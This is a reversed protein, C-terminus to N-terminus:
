FTDTTFIGSKGFADDTTGTIFVPFRRTANHVQLRLLCPLYNPRDHSMVDCDHYPLVEVLGAEQCGDLFQKRDRADENTRADQRLGRSDRYHLYWKWKGKRGREQLLVATRKMSELSLDKFSAGDFMIFGGRAFLKEHTLNPIDDPRDIGAFVASSSKKLELLHPVECIHEAIDQNRVVVLLPCPPNPTDLDFQEPGVAIHGDAELQEKTERFFPDESTVLIFFRYKISSDQTVVHNGDEELWDFFDVMKGGSLDLASSTATNVSTEEKKLRDSQCSINTTALALPSKCDGTTRETSCLEDSVRKDRACVAETRLDLPGDVDKIYPGDGPDCVAISAVSLPEAPATVDDSPKQAKISLDLVECTNSELLTSLQLGSPTGMPEHSMKLVLFGAPALASAVAEAEQRASVKRETHRQQSEAARCIDKEPPFSGADVHFIRPVSKSYFLGIWMNFILNFEEDTDTLNFNWPGHLARSVAIGDPNKELKSDLGFDYTENWQRSVEILEGKQVIRRQRQFSSKCVKKRTSSGITGKDRPENLTRHRKKPSEERSETVTELPIQFLMGDDLGQLEETISMADTPSGEPSPGTEKFIDKANLKRWQKLLKKHERTSTSEPGKIRTSDTESGSAGLSTSRKGAKFVAKLGSIPTVTYRRKRINHDREKSSSGTTGHLEAAWSAGTKTSEEMASSLFPFFDDTGDDAMEQAGMKLVSGPDPSKSFSGKLDKATGCKVSGTHQASDLSLTLYIQEELGTQSSGKKCDSDKQKKKALEMDEPLMASGHPVFVKGCSTMVAKLDDNLSDMCPKRKKAKRESPQDEGKALKRYKIRHGRRPTKGDKELTENATSLTENHCQSYNHECCINGEETALPRQAESPPCCCVAEEKDSKRSADSSVSSNESVSSSEQLGGGEESLDCPASPPPTVLCAEPQPRTVPCPEPQLPEGAYTDCQSQPHTNTHPGCVDVPLSNESSSDREKENQGTPMQVSAHDGALAGTSSSQNENSKSKELLTASTVDQQESSCLGDSKNHEMLASDSKGQLKCDTEVRASGMDELSDVDHLSSTEKLESSKERCPSASGPEENYVTSGNLLVEKDWVEAAFDAKVQPSQDQFKGKARQPAQRTDISHLGESGNDQAPVSPLATEHDVMKSSGGVVAPSTATPVAEAPKEVCVNPSSQPVAPLVTVHSCNMTDKLGRQDIDKSTDSARNSQSPSEGMYCQRAKDLANDSEEPAFALVSVQVKLPSEVPGAVPQKSASEELSSKFPQEAKGPSLELELSPMGLDYDDLEEESFEDARAEPHTDSSVSTSEIDAEEASLLDEPLNPGSLQIFVSAQSSSLEDKKQRLTDVVSGVGVSNGSLDREDDQVPKKEKPPAEETDSTPQGQPLSVPLDYDQSLEDSPDVGNPVLSASSSSCGVLNGKKLRDAAVDPRVDTSSGEACPRVDTSSGEACPRVDTSSGKACPPVDTSSGEACPPMDADSNVASCPEEEPSSIYYYVDDDLEDRSQQRRILEAARKLPIVFSSPDDFYLTVKLRTAETWQPLPYLHSICDYQDPFMTAERRPSSQIAPQILTGYRNLHQELLSRLDGTQDLVCKEIETEAFNLAPIVRSVRLSLPSKKQVPKNEKQIVHSDPFIFLGYLAGIEESSAGEYSLFYASHLMIFVGCDSLLFVLALDKEQLENMLLYLSSSDEDDTSFVEYLSCCKGGVVIEGTFCTEFVEKPLLAKLDTVRMVSEASLLEPLKAPILAGFHSKLGIDFVMSDVALQGRWPKYDFSSFDCREEKVKGPDDAEPKGYSFAVIAFPCVHRPCVDTDEGGNLIEYLYYQTREFALFSSASATVKRIQESEHCDFGPTPPTFKLTYNETVEKVRGKTLKIIAVYGSKGSYWPKLELCDSYKSIYVGKSPDGLTSCTGHGARLGRQGLDTAKNEDDFLLFGFSEELESETYGREKKEARFAAYRTQLADSNILHASSYLFSKRSDDYLYSNHLLPLISGDFVESGPLVLEMLDNLRVDEEMAQESVM